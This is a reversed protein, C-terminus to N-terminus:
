YFLAVSNEVIKIFPLYLKFVFKLYKLGIIININLTFRQVLHEFHKLRIISFFRIIYFINYLQIM